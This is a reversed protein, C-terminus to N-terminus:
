VDLTDIPFSHLRPQFSLGPFLFTFTLPGSYINLLCYRPCPEGQDTVTSLEWPVRGAKLVFMVTHFTLKPLSARKLQQDLVTQSWKADM